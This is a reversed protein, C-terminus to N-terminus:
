NKATWVKEKRKEPSPTRKADGRRGILLNEKISDVREKTFRELDGGWNEVAVRKEEKKRLPRFVDTLGV